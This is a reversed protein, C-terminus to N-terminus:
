NTMCFANLVSLSVRGGRLVPVLDPVSSCRLGDGARCVGTNGAGMEERCTMPICGASRLSGLVGHVLGLTNRDETNQAGGRTCEGRPNWKGVRQEASM